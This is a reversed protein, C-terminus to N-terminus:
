IDKIKEECVRETRMKREKERVITCRRKKRHRKEKEDRGGEGGGEEEPLGDAEQSRRKKATPTRCGKSGKRGSDRVRMRETERRREVKRM